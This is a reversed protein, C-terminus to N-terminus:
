LHLQIICNEKEVVIWNCTHNTQPLIPKVRSFHTRRPFIVIKSVLITTTTTTVFLLVIVKWINYRIESTYYIKRVNTKQHLSLIIRCELINEHIYFHPLIPDYLWLHYLDDFGSLMNLYVKWLKYRMESYM